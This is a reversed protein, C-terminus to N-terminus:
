QGSMTKHFDLAVVSSLRHESTTFFVRLEFRLKALHMALSGLIKMGGRSVKTAVTGNYSGLVEDMGILRPM